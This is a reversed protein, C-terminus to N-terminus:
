ADTNPLTELKLRIVASQPEGAGLADLAQQWAVRAEDPKGQAALIDGRRDEFLALYAQPANVLQGLAADYDKQDLLLSALNLRAVPALAADGSAIVWELEARAADPAGNHQLAHAAALAGRGAYATDAYKERLVQSASRIRDVSEPGQNSSASELAEFYGMAQDAQHGQYWQWGRWGLVSLALLLMVGVIGAGYRGWWAKLAELKEQEELDHAM